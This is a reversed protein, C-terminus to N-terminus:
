ACYLSKIVGTCTSIAVTLFTVGPPLHESGRAHSRGRGRPHRNERASTCKLPPDLPPTPDEPGGGKNKSWVSAWLASLIKKPSQGRGGKVGGGGGGGKASPRSGRSYKVREVIGSSILPTSSIIGSHLGRIFTLSNKGRNENKRFRVTFARILGM